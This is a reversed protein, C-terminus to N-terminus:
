AIFPSADFISRETVAMIIDNYFYVRHGSM